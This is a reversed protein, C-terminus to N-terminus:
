GGILLTIIYLVPTGISLLLSESFIGAIMGSMKGDNAIDMWLAMILWLLAVGIFGAFFNNGPKKGAFIGTFFAVISVIYWPLFFALLFSALAIIAVKMWFYITVPM